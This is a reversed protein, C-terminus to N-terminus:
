NVVNNVKKISPHTEQLKKIGHPHAFAITVVGDDTTIVLGVGFEQHSVKDGKQYVNVRQSFTTPRIPNIKTQKEGIAEDIFRSRKNNGTQGFLLRTTAYSLYLYEKARTIGVYAIRREEELHSNLKENSLNFREMNPFIGEEFAVMFVAKFELGKVQHYTSLIVREVEDKNEISTYLSIQELHQYLRQTFDGEYYKDAQMFVSILENINGKRDDAIDKPEDEDIFAYYQTKDLIGNIIDELSKYTLLGNQLTIILQKFELLKQKTTSTLKINDLYDLSQFISLKSQNAFEVLKDVTTAGIKRKPTNIIRKLEAINGETCNLKRAIRAM